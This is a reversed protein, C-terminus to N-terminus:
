CIITVAASHVPVSFPHNTPGYGFAHASVRWTGTVCPAALQYPTLATGPIRTDYHAARTVWLGNPQLMQLGLDMTHARPPVACKVWVNGLILAKTRRPRAPLFGLDCARNPRAAPVGPAATRPAGSRTAGVIVAVTVLALTLTLTVAAAARRAPRVGTAPLPRIRAARVLVAAAVLATLVVVIVAASVLPSAIASDKATPPVFFNRSEATLTPCAL